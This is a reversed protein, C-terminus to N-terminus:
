RGSSVRPTGGPRDGDEVYSGRLGAVDLPPRSLAAPVARALAAAPDGQHVGALDLPDLSVLWAGGRDVEAASIRRPADLARMETGLRRFRGAYLGGRGAAALAVVESEEVPAAWAAVELSGMGHLPLGLPHALGLAGAMGARVGTYSGPGTVVAVAELGALGLRRLARSLEPLTSAVELVQADILEGRPTARVCVLRGRASSDIAIVSM